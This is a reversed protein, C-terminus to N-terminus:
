RSSRSQRLKLIIVVAHLGRPWLTRNHKLLDVKSMPM